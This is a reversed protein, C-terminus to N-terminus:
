LINTYDKMFISGIHYLAALAIILFNSLSSYLCNFCLATALTNMREEEQLHISNELLVYLVSGVGLINKSYPLLRRVKYRCM